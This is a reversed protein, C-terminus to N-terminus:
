FNKVLVEITISEPNKSHIARRATLRQVQFPPSPFASLVLPVCANSLAFRVGKGQMQACLRFLDEHKALSFKEATYGVFSTAGEPVYPPDLYVFDDAVLTRLPVEFSYTNFEVGQLLASVERLHADDVVVVNRYHGYPVNFGHPGERWVGRFCTKNLVLVYASGQVSMREQTTLGNFKQRIWYYYSERSTKAQEETEPCRNLGGEVPVKMFPECVAKVAAILEEPHDRVNRYFGILAANADSVYVKGTLRWKQQQLGELFGMLVSGGGVFPEYYNRMELPFSSLVEELIQSKGGVWKLLPKTRMEKYILNPFCFLSM